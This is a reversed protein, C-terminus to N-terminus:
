PKGNKLWQDIEDMLKNAEKFGKQTFPFKGGYAEILYENADVYDHLESFTSVTTPVLGSKIDVNISKKITKVRINLNKSLSDGM